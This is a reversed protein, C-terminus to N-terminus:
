RHGPDCTFWGQQYCACELCKGAKQGVCVLLSEKMCAYVQVIELPKKGACIVHMYIYLKKCASEKGSKAINQGVCVCVCVCVHSKVHLSVRKRVQNHEARICMHVHVHVTRWM